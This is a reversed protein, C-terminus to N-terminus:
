FHEEFLAILRVPGIGAPVITYPEFLTQETSDSLSKWGVFNYGHLEPKLYPIFNKEVTRTNSLHTWSLEVNNLTRSSYQIEYELPSWQAYFDYEKGVSQFLEGPTWLFDPTVGTQHLASREGAYLAAQERSINHPIVYHSDRVIKWGEFKYGPLTLYFDTVEHEDLGDNFTLTFGIQKGKNLIPLYNQKNKFEAYPESGAEKIFHKMKDNLNFFYNFTIPKSLHSSKDNQTM